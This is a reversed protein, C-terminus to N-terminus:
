IAGHRYNTYNYLMEEMSDGGFKEKCAVALEWAVAAEAVISAAPVGCSDTRQVSADVTEKTNIDVSALPKALTPIPKMAARIIIPANNSMGGQVGGANNSKVYYGGTTNYGIEDHYNSGPLRCGAFGSGFEVGKIGQISMVAAALRGDLKKDWQTFSGLGWPLNLAIVEFVGGLSDGEKQAASIINVMKETTSSCICRVPSKDAQGSLDAYTAPEMQSSVKGIGTVHSVIRISLEELMAKAIAGIAVRTATERASARELINRVDNQRFKLLGPLDAHGPRPNSVPENVKVNEPDMIDQWNEWDKNAIYFALPSGTTIGDRLGATFHIIDKEMQMRPGRGYGCQRRGLDNNIKDASLKLNAPLGEIIATLCCGHSEGASLYRM